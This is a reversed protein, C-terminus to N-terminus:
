RAQAMVVTWYHGMPSGPVYDYWVGIHTLEPSLVRGGWGDEILEFCGAAQSQPAVAFEALTAAPGDSLWQAYRRSLATLVAVLVQARPPSAGADGLAGPRWRTEDLQPVGRVNIGIGVVVWAVGTEDAALECLIGCVKREDVVIDNPWVIGVTDGLAEAVSVAAVIPIMGVDAAPVPPRLLVSCM